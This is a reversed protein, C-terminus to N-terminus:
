TKFTCLVKLDNTKAKQIDILKDAHWFRVESIDTTENLYIRLTVISGIPAKIRFAFNNLSVKSYANVTRDFRLCFIDKISQFPPKLLLPRFMSQKTELAKQFRLYPIEGTTSHIRRYNYQNAEQALIKRASRIDTINDRACLRVIHDQLWRYPREIKGKAQPSLAYIVKVKCDNLVHKWQPTAEDTTKNHKYWLEDRERVFRFISHSDVYYSLPLGYRLSTSELAKIHAWSSEFRLLAAYLLFRSFDDLSTILYWFEKVYPSFRHMSTDHQILEGVYNTIVERTHPKHEPKKIYFGHEKARKIITPLSVNQKYKSEMQNKIFSYNYFDVPMTKDVILEKETRLEKLMNQEVMPNIKRTAKKRRYTITFNKQDGRYISLLTFFRRSKIGLVECVHIRKIEKKLYREFLAKVQEDTFNTHIQAM